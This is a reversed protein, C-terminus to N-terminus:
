HGHGEACGDTSCKFRIFNNQRGRRGGGQRYAYSVAGTKCVPCPVEGSAEAKGNVAYQVAVIVLGARQFTEDWQQEEAAIEEVTPERRESCVVPATKRNPLTLCPLTGPAFSNYHIGVKCPPRLIGTFHVCSM